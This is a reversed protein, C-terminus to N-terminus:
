KAGPFFEAGPTPEGAGTGKPRSVEDRHVRPMRSFRRLITVGNWVYSERPAPVVDVPVAPVAVAPVVVEDAVADYRHGAPRGVKGGKGIRGSM